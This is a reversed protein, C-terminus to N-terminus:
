RLVGIAPFRRGLSRLEERHLEALGALMRRGKASLTLYVIRRDDNSQRRRVLGSKECRTALAVVGHHKAQLREALEGITAWERQPYGRIQLLLQYQLPTLGHRRSLQESHRLFRRLEYRFDALARYQRQTLRM